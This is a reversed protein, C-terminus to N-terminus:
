LQFPILALPLHAVERNFSNRSVVSRLANLTFTWVDYVDLVEQEEKRHLTFYM